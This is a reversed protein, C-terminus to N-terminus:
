GYQAQRWQRLQAIERQQDRVVAAALEKIEVHQGRAEAIRAMAIAGEHHPVMTGIFQRDVPVGAGDTTM